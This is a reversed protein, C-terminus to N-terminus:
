ISLFTKNVWSSYLFQRVLIIVYLKINYLYVPLQIFLKINYLYVPLQIFLKINCPLTMSIDNCISECHQLLLKVESCLKM